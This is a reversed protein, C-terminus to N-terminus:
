QETVHMICCHVLEYSFKLNMTVYSVYCCCYCEGSYFDISIKNICAEFPQMRDTAKTYIAHHDQTIHKVQLRRQVLHELVSNKANM